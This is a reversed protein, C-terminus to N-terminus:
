GPPATNSERRLVSRMSALAQDLVTRVTEAAVEDLAERGARRVLVRAETRFDDVLRELERAATQFDGAAPSGHRTRRERASAPASRARGRAEEASAALDARLGRMSQRLEDRLTDALERVTASIDAEIGHLEDGREALERRGAATIGYITRRGDPVTAVLGEQELKALRPYVTGASPKYTGGFRDELARILEYGHMDGDALLSLLYLRLAGHAFVAM